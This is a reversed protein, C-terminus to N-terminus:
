KTQKPTLLIINGIKYCNGRDWLISLIRLGEFIFIQDSNQLFIIFFKNHKQMTKLKFTEALFIALMEHTVILSKSRDIQCKM